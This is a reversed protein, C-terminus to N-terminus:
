YLNATLTKTPCSKRRKISDSGFYALLELPTGGSDSEPQMKLLDMARVSIRRTMRTSVRELRVVPFPRM